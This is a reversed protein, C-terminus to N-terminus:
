ENKWVGINQYKQHRNAILEEITQSQLSEIFNHIVEKVEKFAYTYDLHIGGLPESIVHDAIDFSKLDGATVKMADAAKESLATDRFLISACGEPSIVSYWTNEFCIIKDTLGIGLAGGSAGEGIVISLTPVKLNSM